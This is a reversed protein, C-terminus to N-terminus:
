PDNRRSIPMTTIIFVDHGREKEELIFDSAGQNISKAEALPVPPVPGDWLCDLRAEFGLNHWIGGEVRVVLLGHELAKECVKQAAEASLRMGVSGNLEFFEESSKFLGDKSYAM